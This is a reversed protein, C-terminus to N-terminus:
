LLRWGKDKKPNRDKWRDGGERWAVFTYIDFKSYTGSRIDAAAAERITQLEELSWAGTVNLEAEKRVTAEAAHAMAISFRERLEPREDSSKVDVLVEKEEWEEQANILRSRHM